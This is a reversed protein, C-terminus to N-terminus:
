GRSGKKFIRFKRKRGRERREGDNTLHGLVERLRVPDVERDKRIPSRGIPIGVIERDLIREFMRIRRDSALVVVTDYAKLSGLVELVENFIQAGTKLRAFRKREDESLLYVFDVGCEHAVEEVEKKNGVPFGAIAIRHGRRVEGLGELHSVFSRELGLSEAVEQQTAGVARKDLIEGVLNVLRDYNIVKDGIRLLRM